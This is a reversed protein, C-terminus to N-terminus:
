KMFFHIVKKHINNNHLLWVSNDTDAAGAFDTDEVGRWVCIVTRVAVFKM